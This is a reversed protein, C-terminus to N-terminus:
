GSSMELSDESESNEIYYKYIQLFQYQVPIIMEQAKYLWSFYISVENRTNRWATKEARNKPQGSTSGEWGSVATNICPSSQYFGTRAQDKGTCEDIRRGSFGVSYTECEEFWAFM